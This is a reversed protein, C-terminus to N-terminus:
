GQGTPRDIRKGPHEPVWGGPSAGPEPSGDAPLEHVDHGVHEEPVPAAAVLALTTLVVIAVIASGVLAAAVAFTTPVRALAPDVLAVALLAVLAVEFATACIDPFGLAEPVGPEPGFPLGVTRSWTWVLVVGANVAVGVRGAPASPWRFYALAWAAQFWALAAFALGYPLYEGVHDPIVAFHIGAPAL